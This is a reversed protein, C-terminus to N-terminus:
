DDLEFGEIRDSIKQVEYMDIGYEMRNQLFALFVTELGADLIHQGDDGHRLCDVTYNEIDTFVKSVKDKLKYLDNEIDDPLYDPMNDDYDDDYVHNFHGSESLRIMRGTDKGDIIIAKM